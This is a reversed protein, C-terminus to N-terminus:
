DEVQDKVDFLDYVNIAPINVVDMGSQATLSSIFSRIYPYAISVMNLSYTEFVNKESEKDMDEFYANAIVQIYFPNGDEEYNEDFLSVTLTLRGFHHDTDNLASEPTIAYAITNSEVSDWEKFDVNQNKKFEVKVFEIFNLNLNSNVNM